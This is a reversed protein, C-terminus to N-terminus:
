EINHVIQTGKGLRYEHLCSFYITALCFMVSSFGLRITFATPVTLFLTKRSM